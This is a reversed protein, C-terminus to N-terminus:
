QAGYKRRRAKWLGVVGGGLLLCSAVFMVLTLVYGPTSQPQESPLTASRPNNPDVYVAVSEGVDYGESAIIRKVYKRSEFVFRFTVSSPGRFPTSTDVVVGRVRVGHKELREQRESSPGIVLGPALFLVAGGLIMLVARPRVRRLLTMLASVGMVLAYQRSGLALAVDVSVSVDQAV